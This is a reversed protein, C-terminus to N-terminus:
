SDEAQLRKRAMTRLSRVFQRQWEMPYETGWEQTGLLDLSDSRPEEYFVIKALIALEMDGFAAFLAEYEEGYM